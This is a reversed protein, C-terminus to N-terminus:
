VANEVTNRHSLTSQQQAYASTASNIVIFSLSHVIKCPGAHKQTIHMHASQAHQYFPFYSSM